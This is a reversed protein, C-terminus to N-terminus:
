LFGFVIEALPIQYIVILLNDDIYDMTRFDRAQAPSIGYRGGCWEQPVMIQAKVYPEEIYVKTPDPFESPNSVEVTGTLPISM